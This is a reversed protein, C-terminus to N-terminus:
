RMVKEVGMADYVKAGSKIIMQNKYLYKGSKVTSVNVDKIGTGTGITVKSVQAEPYDGNDGNLVLVQGDIKIDYEGEKMDPATLYYFRMAAGSTGHIKELNEHYLTILYHDEKKDASFTAYPMFNGKKTVGEFREPYLEIPEDDILTMGEPLYLDFQLATYKDEADCVLEVDFYTEWENETLGAEANFPVVRLYNDAWIATCSLMLVM